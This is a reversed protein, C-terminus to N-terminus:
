LTPVPCSNNAQSIIENDQKIIKILHEIGHLENKLHNKIDEVVTDDLCVNPTRHQQNQVQKLQSMLENLCGKYKTQAHLESLISEMRSRLKEEDAQIPLGRRNEIEKSILVKLVRNSLIVKKRRCEELKSRMAAVHKQMEAVQESLQRLRARQQQTEFQQFKFRENLEKFGILAVPMFKKPDPNNTKAQEWVNPDIGDPVNTLYEEIEKEGEHLPILEILNNSLAQNLQQYQQPQILYKLIEDAPYKRNTAADIISIQLICKDPLTKIAEVKANCNAGGFLCRLNQEVQPVGSENITSKLSVAFTHNSDVKQSDSKRQAYGIAKFRQTPLKETIELPEADRSYFAKGTGWLAQIKNFNGLIRDRSDNYIHPQSIVQLIHNVQQQFM